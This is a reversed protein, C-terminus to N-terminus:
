VIDAKSLISAARKASKREAKKAFQADKHGTTGSGDTDFNEAGHALANGCCHRLGGIFRAWTGQIAGILHYSMFTNMIVGVVMLRVAPTLDYKVVSCMQIDVTCIMVMSFQLAAILTFLLALLFSVIIYADIAIFVVLFLVNQCMLQFSKTHGTRRKMRAVVAFGEVLIAIIIGFSAIAIGPAMFGAQILVTSDESNQRIVVMMERMQLLNLLLEESKKKFLEEEYLELKNKMVDIQGIANDFIRNFQSDLLATVNGGTDAVYQVMAVASAESSPLAAKIASLKGNSMTNQLGTIQMRIKTAFEFIVSLDLTITENRNAYKSAGMAAIDGLQTVMEESKEIEVLMDNLMRMIKSVFKVKTNNELNLANTYQVAENAYVKVFGLSDDIAISLNLFVSYTYAKHPETWNKKEAVITSIREKSDVFVVKLGDLASHTSQTYELLGDRVITTQNEIEAIVEIANGAQHTVEVSVLSLHMAADKAGQIVMSNSILVGIVMLTTIWPYRWCKQFALKTDAESKQSCTLVSYVITFIGCLGCDAHGM